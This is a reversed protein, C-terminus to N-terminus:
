DDEIRTSRREAIEEREDRLGIRLADFLPLRNIPPMPVNGKVSFWIARNLVEPDAMDAHELDQEESRRM